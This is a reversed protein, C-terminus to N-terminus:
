VKPENMSIVRAVIISILLGVIFSLIISPLFNMCSVGIPGEELGYCWNIMAIFEVICVVIGAILYLIPISRETTEKAKLFNGLPLGILLVTSATLIFFWIIPSAMSTMVLCVGLFQYSGVAYQNKQFFLFHHPPRSKFERVGVLRPGLGRAKLRAPCGGRSNSCMLILKSIISKDTANLFKYFNDRPGLGNMTLHVFKQGSESHFGFRPIELM